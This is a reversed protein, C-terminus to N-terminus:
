DFVAAPDEPPAVERLRRIEFYAAAAMAALYVDSLTSATACTLLAPFLGFARESSYYTGLGVGEALWDAGFAFVIYLAYLVLLKLRAGRAIRFARGIAAFVGPREVVAVVVSLGVLPYVVSGAVYLLPVGAGAGVIALGYFASELLLNMLVGAGLLPVLVKADPTLLEGWTVKRGELEQWFLYAVGGHFLSARFAEIVISAIANGDGPPTPATITAYDFLLEPLGVLLVGLGFVMPANRVTFELAETLVHDLRLRPSALKVADISCRPWRTPRM